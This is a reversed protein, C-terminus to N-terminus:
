KIKEAIKLESVLIERKSYDSKSIGKIKLIENEHDESIIYSGDKIEIPDIKTAPDGNKHYSLVKRCKDAIAKDTIIIM